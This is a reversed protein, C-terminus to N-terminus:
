LEKPKEPKDCVACFECYPSKCFKECECYMSRVDVGYKDMRVIMGYCNCLSLLTAISPTTRCTEIDSIYSISLGTKASIERLKQGSKERREKILAGLPKQSM